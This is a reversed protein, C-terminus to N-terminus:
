LDLYQGRYYRELFGDYNRVLSELEWNCQLQTFVQSLVLFDSKKTAACVLDTDLDICKVVGPPGWNEWPNLHYDRFVFSSESVSDEIGGGM